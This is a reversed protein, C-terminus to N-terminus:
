AAPHGLWWTGSRHVVHIPPSNPVVRRNRPQHAPLDGYVEVSVGLAYSVLIPFTEDLGGGEISIALEETVEILVGNPSSLLEEGLHSRIYRQVAGRLHPEPPDLGSRQLAELFAAPLCDPARGYHSITMGSPCYSPGPINRYSGYASRGRMEVLRTGPNQHGECDPGGEEAAVQQHAPDLDLSPRAAQQRQQRVSDLNLIPRPQELADMISNLDRGFTAHMEENQDQMAALSAQIAELSAQM